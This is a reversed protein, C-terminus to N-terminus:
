KFIFKFCFIFCLFFVSLNQETLCTLNSGLLYICIFMIHVLWWDQMLHHRDTTLNVLPLHSIKLFFLRLCTRMTSFSRRTPNIKSRKFTNTPFNEIWGTNPFVWIMKKTIFLNIELMRSSLVKELVLCISPQDKQDCCSWCLYVNGEM